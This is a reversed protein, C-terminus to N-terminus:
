GLVSAIGDSSVNYEALKSERGSTGNLYDEYRKVIVKIHLHIKTISRVKIAPEVNYGDGLGNCQIKYQQINIFKLFLRGMYIM